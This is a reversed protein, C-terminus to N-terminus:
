TTGEQLVAKADPDSATRVLAVLETQLEKARQMIAYAQGASASSGLALIGLQYGSSKGLHPRTKVVGRHARIELYLRRARQEQSTASM